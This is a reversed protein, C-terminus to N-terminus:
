GLKSVLFELEFDRPRLLDRNSLSFVIILQTSELENNIRWSSLCLTSSSSATVTESMLISQTTQYNWQVMSDNTFNVSLLFRNIVVWLLNSKQFTDLTPFVSWDRFCEEGRHLRNETTISGLLIVYKFNLDVYQKTEAARLRM